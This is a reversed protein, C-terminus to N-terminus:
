GYIKKQINQLENEKLKFNVLLYAALLKLLIPVLAYSFTIFHRVNTNIEGDIDFDLVGM